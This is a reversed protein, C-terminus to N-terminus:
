GCLVSLKSRFVIKYERKPFTYTYEILGCGIKLMKKGMQCRISFKFCFFFRIEFYFLHFIGINNLNLDLEFLLYWTM